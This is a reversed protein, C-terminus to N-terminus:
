SRPTCSAEGPRAAAAPRYRSRLADFAWQFGFAFEWPVHPPQVNLVFPFRRQLRSSAVFRQRRGGVLRWAAHRLALRARARLRRARPLAGHSRAVFARYERLGRESFAEASVFDAYGTALSRKAFSGRPLGAEEAIRRAIPRDYGGGVSWPAMEPARSTRQIAPASRGGILAPAFPLYGARLRFEIQSAGPARRAWPVALDRATRAREWVLDGSHGTLLLRGRLREELGGLPPNVAITFLAFEADVPDARRQYDWRDHVTCALGLREANEAANDNDPRNRRGDRFTFAERCGVERALAAVASTDYGRSLAVLPAFRAAREPATANAVVRELHEALWARYAAYGDPPEPAPGLEYRVPGASGAVLTWGFHVRLRQGAALRLEGARCLLGERWIRMLDYAYFPHLPEPAVGARAMAFVPSNSVFLAGEREVSFIPSLRDSSPRFRVEGGSSEAATGALVTAGVPEFRAFPGDWAAECFARPRTEVGPGHAVHVWPAGADM